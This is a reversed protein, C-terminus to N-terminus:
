VPLLNFTRASILCKLEKDFFSFILLILVITYTQFVFFVKCPIMNNKRCNAVYSRAKSNSDDQFTIYATAREDRDENAPYDKSEGCDYM